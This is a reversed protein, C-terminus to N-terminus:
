GQKTDWFGNTGNLRLKTHMHLTVLRDFWMFVDHQYSAMKTICIFTLHWIKRQKTDWFGQTRNLGYKTHMYLTILCVYTMIVDLQYSAMKTICIFTLPWVKRQKTDWFGQTRNLGYKTHMISHSWAFMCDYYGWTSIVGDQNHLHLDFTLLHFKTNLIDWFRFWCDDEFKWLIKARILFPYLLRKLRIVWGHRWRPAMKHNWKM